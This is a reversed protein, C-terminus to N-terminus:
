FHLYFLICHNFKSNRTPMNISMPWNGRQNQVLSKPHHQACKHHLLQSYMPQSMRWNWQQCKQHISCEQGNCSRKSSKLVWWRWMTGLQQQQVKLEQNPQLWKSTRSLPPLVHWVDRSLKQRKTLATHVPIHTVMGSITPEDAVTRAVGLFRCVWMNDWYDTFAGQIGAATSVGKSM